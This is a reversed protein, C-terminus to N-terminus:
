KPTTPSDDIDVSHGASLSQARRYPPSNPGAFNSTMTTVDSNQGKATASSSKNARPFSPSSSSPISSSSSVPALVPSACPSETRVGHTSCSNSATASPGMGPKLPNTEGRIFRELKDVCADQYDHIWRVHNFYCVNRMDEPLTEPSPWRFNDILPIINIGSEIAATIEKHVWDKREEDGMCRDLANATLVIIFNRAQRVSELLSEDFKGARLREIDIFVTFGRLQLHVKLLSALQSGNSRRYSIFVDIPARSGSISAPGAGDVSDYMMSSRSRALTRLEEIKALIKMRHIGNDISCDSTLHDDTISPLLPRDVGTHLMQYTYQAMEEGVDGRLWAGLMSPDCSTYDCSIKLDRLERLFRKRTIPCTMEISDRLETETLRLLLDGDVQCAEFRETYAGFGVQATWHAVDTTTWLPVQQSLKHPIEEGIIKLAQGALRSAVRNPTSALWKLPEVAGIDYLMEIRGQESKIGAEMVFHFAALAQAEERRSSLVPILRKLWGPSRGHRHSMDRQAFEAPDHTDVFPLVLALTGSSMVASEIEKNSVLVGIALLAYYRVSDDEVFALPFLWEPVFPYERQSTVGRTVPPTGYVPMSWAQEMLVNLETLANVQEPVSGMQLQRLKQKLSHSYIQFSSRLNSKSSICNSGDQTGQGSGTKTRTGSEKMKTKSCSLDEVSSPNSDQSFSRSATYMYSLDETKLEEDQPITELHRGSSTRMMSSTAEGLEVREFAEARSLDLYVRNCESINQGSSSEAATLHVEESDLFVLDRMLSADSQSRELAKYPDTAATKRLSSASAIRQMSTQSPSSESSSSNPSSLSSMSEDLLLNEGDEVARMLDEVMEDMDTNHRRRTSVEGKASTSKGLDLSRRRVTSNEESSTMTTTKVTVKAGTRSASSSSSSSSSSAASSSSSSSSVSQSFASATTSKRVPDVGDESAASAPGGESDAMLSLTLKERPGKEESEPDKAQASDTKIHSSLEASQNRPEGVGCQSNLCSSSTHGTELDSPQNSPESVATSNTFRTTTLINATSSSTPHVLLGEVSLQKDQDSAIISDETQNQGTTMLSVGPSIFATVPESELLTSSSWLDTHSSLVFSGSDPVPEVAARLLPSTCFKSEVAVQSAESTQLVLSESVDTGLAKGLNDSPSAISKAKGTGGEFVNPSDSLLPSSDVTVDKERPAPGAPPPALGSTPPSKEVHSEHRVGAEHTLATSKDGIDRSGSDSTQDHCRRSRESDM